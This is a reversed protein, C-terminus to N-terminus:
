WPGRGYASMAQLEAPTCLDRFFSRCEDVGRLALIATYLAREHQQEQRPSLTRPRGTAPRSRLAKMGLGPKKAAALWKYITTRSFGYAAIVALAAEGDRVREVAMRRIAELTRHDFKRGDRKM